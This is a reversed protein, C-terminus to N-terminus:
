GVARRRWWRGPSVSAWAPAGAGRHRDVRYFRDFVHPLDAAPIGRGNDAVTVRWGADDVRLGLTIRAEARGLTATVANDVLNGLAQFLRGADIRVTRDGAVSMDVAIGVQGIRPSLRAFADRAWEALAVPQRVLPVAGEEVRAAELIDGILRDMLAIEADMQALHPAAQEPRRAITEGLARLRGLPSRLDHSVDALLRRQRAEADRLARSMDNFSRVLGALERQRPPDLTEGFHGGAVRAALTSLRRFAATLDRVPPWILLAALGVFVLVVPVFEVHLPVAPQGGRSLVLTGGDPLPAAGVLVELDQHAPGILRPDLPPKDPRSDAMVRGDAALVTLRVRDHAARWAQALAAPDQDAPWRSAQWRAEDRLDHQWDGYLFRAQFHFSLTVLIGLCVAVLLLARWFMLRFLGPTKM